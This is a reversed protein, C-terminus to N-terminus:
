LIGILLRKILWLLVILIFPSFDITTGSELTLPRIRSRIADLSPNYIRDFFARIKAVEPQYSSRFLGLIWHVVVGLILINIVFVILELLPNSM